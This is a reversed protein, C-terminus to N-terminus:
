STPTCAKRLRNYAKIVRDQSTPLKERRMAEEVIEAATTKRGKTGQDYFAIQYRKAVIRVLSFIATDRTLTNGADPGSRSPRCRTGDLTGAIFVALNRPMPRCSKLYAGATRSLQDYAWRDDVARRLLADIQIHFDEGDDQVLEDLSLPVFDGTTRVKCLLSRVHQRTWKVAEEYATNDM